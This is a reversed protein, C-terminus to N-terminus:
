AAPGPASQARLVVAAAGMATSMSRLSALGLDVADSAVPMATTRIGERIPSLFIEGADSLEGGILIRDPNNVNVVSGLAIGIYRGAEIVLNQALFDSAKAADVLVKLSEPRYGAKRAQALIVSGGAYLELCGRSGCRCPDGRHDLTMHGFEGATGAAGRYMEGNIVFGAGIGTAAKVYILTQGARGDGFVYEGLGGLSADNGVAVNKNQLFGGFVQGPMLEAWEPLWTKSGIRGDLTLPAPIALGAGILDEPAGGVSGLLETADGAAERLIEIPRHDADEDLLKSRDDLKRHGADVIVVRIHRRGIDVGLVLGARRALRVLAAPRGTAGEPAVDEEAWGEDILERVVSSVTPRSLHTAAVLEARTSKGRRRLVDAVRLATRGLTAMTAPPWPVSMPVTM